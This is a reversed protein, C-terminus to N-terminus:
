FLRGTEPPLEWEPTNPLYFDTTPLYDGRGGLCIKCQNRVVLGTAGQRKRPELDPERCKCKKIRKMASM